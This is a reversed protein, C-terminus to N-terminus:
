TVELAGNNISTTAANLNITAAGHSITIGSSDITISAPMSSAPPNVMIKLGGAGPTDDMTISMHETKLIKGTVPPLTANPAEGVGWFCGSWILYDPDGGECEVWVNAGVPPIFYFGQQNGAYPVCPMAWNLPQEPTLAPCDVLLRGQLQPDVNNIVTGRYKGFFRHAQQM